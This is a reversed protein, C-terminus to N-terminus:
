MGGTVTDYRQLDAPSFNRELMPTTMKNVRAMAGQLISSVDLGLAYSEKLVFRMGESNREMQYQAFAESLRATRAQREKQNQYLRDSAAFNREMEVPTFGLTYMAKEWMGQGDAIPYGSSSSRIEDSQISNMLRYLTVPATARAIQSVFKADKMPSEGTSAWHDFAQSTADGLKMLRDLHATGFLLNADRMPNSLPSSVAGSISVTTLAAPLGFNLANSYFENEQGFGDYTLQLMDKGTFAKAFGDAVFSLPVASAGGLAFTGATQWMFPSWNNHMIGEGTYELWSGVYNMMWNKFLGFFSGAPTTFMRPRDAAGYMFMSKETFQKAFNYIAEPDSLRMYDEAVMHGITFAHLRSMRESANPLFESLAKLWSGFGGPSSIASRLDRIKTAGEGVFEDMLKSDIVRENLAREYGKRLSATPRAMKGFSNKLIVMPNLVGMSAVPGNTGGAAYYTYHSALRAPPATMVFAIEPMVTQLFQLANIVPYAVKGAGLQLHAMANNTVSVIRSASNTGLMPALIKDALQNQIVDLPGKIGAMDNMRAVLLKHDHPSEISLKELDGALQDDISMSAQAKLRDRIGNEFHSLLEEKSLDEIDGHFGRIGERAESFGMRVVRPKIDKPIHAVNSQEYEEAIDTDIGEKKLSEQLKLAEKQAGRRNHGSAIAKVKGDRGRLAVRTDGDWKRGMGYHGSLAQTIPRGTAKEAKNLQNMVYLDLDNLGKAVRMTNPAIQGTTVMVDLQNPYIGKKRIMNFQARETDTLSDILTKAANPASDKKYSRLAALFGNVKPDLSLSGYLLQQGENEAASWASRAASHLYTARANQTFQFRAPALFEKAGDRFRGILENEKLEKPILREILGGIGKPDSAGARYNNFPIKEKFGKLSNYVNGGDEAVKAVPNWAGKALMMNNFKQAQTAFAGPKDTKFVVWVDDPMPKGADGRAKKAMVFMGDNAEKGMWYNEGIPKLNKTIASNYTGALQAAKDGTFRVERFYQGNDEFNEPLGLEDRARIWEDENAFDGDWTIFRRRQLGSKGNPKFMRNIADLSKKPAEGELDQVYRVGEPLIELRSRQRLKKLAETVQNLNRPDIGGKEIAAQLYRVQLQPPSAIDFGPVIKNLPLNRTGAAAIGSLVGGIGGELALSMGASGLMDGLSEDGVVQSALVRGAEFPALRAAGRMAGTLVPAKGLDGIANVVKMYKPIKATAGLWGAYPVMTGGLESLMAAGPNQARWNMTTEGPHIGVLEGMSSVGSMLFNGMWDYSDGGLQVTSAKNPPKYSSYIDRLKDQDSM